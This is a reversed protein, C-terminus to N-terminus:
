SHLYEVNVDIQGGEIQIHLVKVKQDAPLAEMPAAITNIAEITEFPPVTPRGDVSLDTIHTVRQQEDFELAAHVSSSGDSLGVGNYLELGIEVFLIGLDIVPDKSPKKKFFM